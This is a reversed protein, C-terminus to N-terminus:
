RFDAFIQSFTREPDPKERKSDGKQRARLPFLFLPCQSLPDKKRFPDRSTRKFDPVRIHDRMKARMDRRYHAPQKAIPSAMGKPQKAISPMEGAGVHPM